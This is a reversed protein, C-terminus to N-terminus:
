EEWFCERMKKLTKKELRSIQVQSVGLVKAIETQTKNQFYRMVILKKERETLGEMAQQLALQNTLKEEMSSKEPIKEMLTIEKGDTKLTKNLSDVESNAELAMVIEEVPLGSHLSLEEMTPDRGLEHALSERLRYLKYGEEKWKRSVKIMGDDRFFRKIEGAILPVAYTSFKVDFSFDFREISKMLGICGIQFLDEMEYGRGHFGRIVNWVLGTNETVLREKADKDGEKARKLLERTQDM